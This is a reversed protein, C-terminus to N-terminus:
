DGKIRTMEEKGLVTRICKLDISVHPYPELNFIIGASLITFAFSM